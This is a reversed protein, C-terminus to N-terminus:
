IQAFEMRVPKRTKFSYRIDLLVKAEQNRAHSYSKLSENLRHLVEGETTEAASFCKASASNLTPVRVRQAQCDQCFRINELSCLTLSHYTFYM